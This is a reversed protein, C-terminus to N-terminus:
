EVRFLVFVSRLDGAIKDDSVMLFAGDDLAVLGEFDADPLDAVPIDLHTTECAEAGLCAPLDIIRLWPALAKTAGDKTRELIYLKDGATEMGKISVSDADGTSFSASGALTSHLGHLDRPQGAQPEETMALFGAAQTWALAEIGDKENANQLVEPLPEDRLWKGTADFVALRPGKESVIAITGDGLLAAGEPNFGQDHLAAGDPGTLVHVSVPKVGVLRGDTIEVELNAIYGRDSIALVGNGDPARVLASFEGIKEGYMKSEGLIVQGLLTVSDAMTAMAPIAVTAAAALTTLFVTKM